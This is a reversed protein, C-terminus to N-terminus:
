PPVASIIRAAPSSFPANETTNPVLSINQGFEPRAAAPGTELPTAPGFRAAGSTDVM